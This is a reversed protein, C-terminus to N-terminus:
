KCNLRREFYQVRDINQREVRNMRSRVRDQNADTGQYASGLTAAYARGKQTSFIYGNRAFIENRAIWLKFCDLGALDGDTLLRSNSDPFLWVSATAPSGPQSETPQQTGRQQQSQREQQAEPRIRAANVYVAVLGVAKQVDPLWETWDRKSTHPQALATDEFYYIM